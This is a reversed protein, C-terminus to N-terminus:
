KFYFICNFYNNFLFQIAPDTFSISSASKLFFEKFDSESRRSHLRNPGVSGCDKHKRFGVSILPHFKLQLEKQQWRM